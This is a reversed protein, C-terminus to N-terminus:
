HASRLQRQFHIAGWVFLVAPIYVGPMDLWWHHAAVLGRATDHVHLIAHLTYFVAVLTVLPARLGPRALAWVLAVGMTLFACGIDRVFHANLPGTDPVGAPLHEYWHAPEVLMWVGNAISGLAGVVLLLKWWSSIPPARGGTTPDTTTPESTM